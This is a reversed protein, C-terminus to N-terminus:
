PSRQLNPQTLIAVANGRSSAILADILQHVDLASHLSAMPEVRGRAADVFNALIAKHAEHSFDMPKAGAGLAEEEGREIRRGDLLTVQLKGASLIATGLTGALEIREAFGPFTATSAYLSAVCGRDFQMVGVVTDECEMRHVPSTKAYAFVERPRGLLWLFLDLTHIAQTMLVGGGDRETTGRGPEDYYSQPRWWPVAVSASHINGLGGADLLGRLYASAARARHQLVAAAVVGEDRCAAVLECAKQTTVEIPKEVLLHKGAAAVRRGLDLHTDPPTLLLVGDVWGDTLVRDLDVGPQAHPLRSALAQARDLSRAVVHRVTVREQLELLSALHPASAMGAGVVALKFTEDDM